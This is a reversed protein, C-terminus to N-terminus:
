SSPTFALRLGVEQIDILDGLSAPLIGDAFTVQLAINFDGKTSISLESITIETGSVVEDFGDPLTLGKTGLWSTLDDLSVTVQSGEPLSFKVGGEKAFAETIQEKLTGASATITSSQVPVTQGGIVFTVSLGTELDSM